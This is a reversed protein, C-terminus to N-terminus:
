LVKLLTERVLSMAIPDEGKPVPERVIVVEYM